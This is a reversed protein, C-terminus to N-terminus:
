QWCRQMGTSLKHLVAPQKSAVVLTISQHVKCFM